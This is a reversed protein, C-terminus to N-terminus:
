NEKNPNTMYRSVLEVTQAIDLIKYIMAFLLCGLLGSSIYITSLVNEMREAKNIPSM